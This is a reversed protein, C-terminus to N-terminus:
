HLGGTGESTVEPPTDEAQKAALWKEAHALANDLAAFIVENAFFLNEEGLFPIMNARKLQGMIEDNLGLIILLGDHAKLTAHLKQLFRVGTNGLYTNDRLRLIIVPHRTEPKIHPMLLDLQRMAAFFLHGSVSLVVVENDPLYEPVPVERFRNNDTPVFRVMKIKSASTYVYIASSVIVGLYISYELPLLLTAILTVLMSVRSMFSIRWLAKLQDVRILSFAAVVLHGALAALTVQEIASGFVLLVGGVMIGAFLNAFRTRAGASINVATRSLSGGAPLSQFFSGIINGLGSGIFDRNIDPTSGDPQSINESLGAGQVSALLSMAFAATLLSPAYSLDPLSFPPFGAPIESIDKVLAVHDWGLAKVMVTTVIIAILTAISRFRRTHHLSYIMVVAIVGIVTSEPDSQPLHVLWDLFRQIANGSAGEEFGTLHDVQGIIILLGAGTIFGTMVANSVFRTLSGLRLVGFLLQFGGVLLTLTIMRQIPDGDDFQGLTSFVVLVLANTPGITMFVSSTTLAGVITSIFAAYLGYIPSVGAIIAFGMAQPAGAVAGTIGAVFDALFSKKVYQQLNM